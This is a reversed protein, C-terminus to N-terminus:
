VGGQQTDTQTTTTTTTGAPAVPINGNAMALKLNSVAVILKVVSEVLDKALVPAYCVLVGAPYTLWDTWDLKRSAGECYFGYSLMLFAGIAFWRNTAHHGHENKMMRLYDTTTAKQYLSSFIM